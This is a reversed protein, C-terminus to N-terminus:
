LDIGIQDRVYAFMTAPNNGLSAALAVIRTDAADAVTPLLCGVVLLLAFLTRRAARFACGSIEIATRM